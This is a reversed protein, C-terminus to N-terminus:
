MFDDFDQAYGGDLEALDFDDKMQAKFGGGPVVGKKKKKGKNQQSILYLDSLTLYVM